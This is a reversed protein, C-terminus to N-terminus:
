LLPLLRDYMAKVQLDGFSYLAMRQHFQRFVAAFNLTEQERMIALLMREPYGLGCEDPQRAIQAKVATLVFPFEPSLMTAIEFLKENDHLQYALWLEAFLALAQASLHSKTEFAQVLDQKSMHAFSFENGQNPRVLYVRSPQQRPSLLSCVFWFNVQCFLDEEFWCVIDREQDLTAIKELEPATEQYYQQESCQPYRAIFAARTAMLEKLSNGQVEGDVLCERAVLVEGSFCSPFREKLSDGNLIHTINSTLSFQSKAM